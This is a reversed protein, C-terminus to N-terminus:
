AELERGMPPDTPYPFEHVQPRNEGVEFADHQRILYNHQLSVLHKGDVSYQNVTPLM